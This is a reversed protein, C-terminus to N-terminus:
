MTVFHLLMDFAISHGAHTIYKRSHGAELQQQQEGYSTKPIFYPSQRYQTCRIWQIYRWRAVFTSNVIEATNIMHRSDVTTKVAQVFTVAHRMADVTRIFM